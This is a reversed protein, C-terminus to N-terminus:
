ESAEFDKKDFKGDRKKILTKIKGKAKELQERCLGALKIAEEYNKLSSDLSMNGNELKEVIKELDGIAKEFSINKM